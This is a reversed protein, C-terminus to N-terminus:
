SGKVERVIVGFRLALYQNSEAFIANRIEEPLHEWSTADPIRRRRKLLTAYGIFLGGPTINPQVDDHTVPLKNEQPSWEEPKELIHEQTPTVAVLCCIEPNLLFVDWDDSSPPSEDMHTHLAIVSQRGTRKAPNYAVPYKDGIQFDLQAGTDRDLVISAESEGQRAMVRLKSVAQGYAQRAKESLVEWNEANGDTM